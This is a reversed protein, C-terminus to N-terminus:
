SPFPRMAGPRLDNWLDTAANNDSETIMATAHAREGASPRADDGHLLAALITAKVISASDFQKSAALECTVGTAPDSVALGVASVRRRLVAAIEASMRAALQPHSGSRCAGTAGPPVGAGPAGTAGPAGITADAPGAVPRLAGVALLAAVLKRGM